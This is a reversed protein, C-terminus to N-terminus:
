VPSLTRPRSRATKAGSVRRFRKADDGRRGKAAHSREVSVRFIRSQAFSSLHLHQRADNSLSLGRAPGHLPRRAEFGCGRNQGFRGTRHLACHARGSMSSRLSRRRRLKHRESLFIRRLPARLRRSRQSEHSEADPRDSCRRGPDGCGRPGSGMAGLRRAAAARAVRGRAAASRGPARRCGRCSRRAPAPPSHKSDQGSSRLPPRPKSIWARLTRDYADLRSASRVSYHCSSLTPIYEATACGQPLNRLTSWRFHGRRASLSALPGM